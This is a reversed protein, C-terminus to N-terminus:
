GGAACAARAEAEKQDAQALLDRIEGKLKAIEKALPRAAKAKDDALKIKAEKLTRLADSNDTNWRARANSEVAALLGELNTRQTKLGKRQTVCAQDTRTEWSCDEGGCAQAWAVPAGGLLMALSMWLITAGRLQLRKGLTM